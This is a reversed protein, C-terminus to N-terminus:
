VGIRSPDCRQKDPVRFHARARRRDNWVCLRPEREVGTTGFAVDQSESSTQRDLVILHAKARHWDDQICLQPEREVGTSGFAVHHSETSTQRDLARVYARARRRDSWICTQAEREVGTSRIHNSPRCFDTQGMETQALHPKQVGSTCMKSAMKSDPLRLFYKNQRAFSHRGRPVVGGM